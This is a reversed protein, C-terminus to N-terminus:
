ADDCIDQLYYLRIAPEFLIYKFTKIVLPTNPINYLKKVHADKKTTMPNCVM